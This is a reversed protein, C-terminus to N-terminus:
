TGCPKSRTSIFTNERAKPVMAGLHNKISCFGQFFRASFAKGYEEATHPTLGAARILKALEEFDVAGCDSRLDIKM